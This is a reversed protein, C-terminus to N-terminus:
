PRVRTAHSLKKWPLDGPDAALMGPALAYLIDTDPTEVVAEFDARFHQTSKVVIIKMEEPNIGVMRFLERDQAGIRGSAVVILVGDIELCASPGLRTQFGTMKPGKFTTVGDSLALIRFTGSVPPESPGTPTEVSEGLQIELTQGVGARHAAAAAQPDYLVGLTVRGPFVEGAKADLLAHLMGTTSSTGGIGPNDQTDAIVIARRASAARELGSIVAERAKLAKLRWQEPEAIRKLLTAIAEEARDGHSWLVPACEEFDSSPFGMCFSTMTGLREDIDSLLEYAGKAPDSATGQSNVPILYPLREVRLKERAGNRLYRDLLEAAREGTKVYDIHPYTRFAVLGDAQELMAKTVNAHLDLSVVIPVSPGVVRRIRTLLEGEADDFSQAMAAGHLELYIADYEMREADAVITECIREFAEDTVYSSPVAGCWLSPVLTWGRQQAQRAFGTASIEVKMVMDLMLEGHTPPPFSEGREFAAWDALHAAFTNTEHKFGAVFVRLASTM